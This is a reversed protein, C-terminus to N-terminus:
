ILPLVKAESVMIKNMFFSMGKEKTENMGRQRLFGCKERQNM